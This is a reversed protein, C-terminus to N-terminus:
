KDFRRHKLFMDKNRQRGRGKEREGTKALFIEFKEELDEKKYSARERM